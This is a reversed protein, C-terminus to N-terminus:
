ADDKGSPSPNCLTDRARQWGIGRKAKALLERIRFVDRSHLTGLSDVASKGIRHLMLYDGEKVAKLLMQYRPDDEAAEDDPVTDGDEEEAEGADEERLAEEEAQEEDPPPEGFYRPFLEEFVPLDEIDKILTCSLATEFGTRDTGVLVASELADAIQSHTVNVGRRRLLHGFELIKEDLNKASPM